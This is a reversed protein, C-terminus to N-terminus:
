IEHRSAADLAARIEAPTNAGGNFVALVLKAARLQAPTGPEIGNALCYDNLAATLVALQEPNAIRSFPV